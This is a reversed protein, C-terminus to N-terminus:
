CKREHVVGGMPVIAPDDTYFELMSGQRAIPRPIYPVSTSTVAPRQKKESVTPGAAELVTLIVTTIKTDGKVCTSTTTQRRRTVHGMTGKARMGIAEQKLGGRERHRSDSGPKIGYRTTTSIMCVPPPHMIASTTFQKAYM